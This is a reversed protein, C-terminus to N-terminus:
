VPLNEIIGCAHISIVCFIGLIRLLEIGSKRM